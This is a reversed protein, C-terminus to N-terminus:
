LEVEALQRLVYDRIEREAPVERVVRGDEIWKALLPEGCPPPSDWPAFVHKSGCKYVQKFGPLKGRKTIPVWRGDVEVEVIDMAVDVSPPFAISTGVGFGDAIDKLAEVQAEDLGGSVFIKVNRYGHLDLAWRVEEVIKRMNGRRSGPTDLRVGYLRDGLLRAALLAEEREDIFTDVLVIRSVEPPMTRDFWVWALTHDGTTAKFIIMLAHPMTGSPRIGILEAGMVTAVGDCGGIYAARD